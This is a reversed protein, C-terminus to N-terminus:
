KLITRTIHINSLLTKKTQEYEARTILGSELLHALESLERVPGTTPEELQKIVDPSADDLAQTNSDKGIRVSALGGLLSVEVSQGRLLPSNLTERLSHGQAKLRRYIFIGALLIFVVGGLFIWPLYLVVGRFFLVLLGIAAFLLVHLALILHALAVGRLIGDSKKSKGWSM